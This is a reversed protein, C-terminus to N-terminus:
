GELTGVSGADLRGPSDVAWQWRVTENQGRGGAADSRGRYGLCENNGDVM